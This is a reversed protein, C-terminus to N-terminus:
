SGTAASVPTAAVSAASKKYVNMQISFTYNKDESGSAPATVTVTKINTFRIDKELDAMFAKLSDYSSRVSISVGVVNSDTAAGAGATAASGSKASDSISIAPIIIQYKAGIAELETILNPTDKDGPISVSLADPLDGLNNLSVKAKNLADKKAQAVKIDAEAQKLQLNKEKYKPIIMSYSFYFSAAVVIVTFVASILNNNNKKM